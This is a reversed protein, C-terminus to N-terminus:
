ISTNGEAVGQWWDAPGWPTRPDPHGFDVRQTWDGTGGTQKKREWTVRHLEMLVTAERTKNVM